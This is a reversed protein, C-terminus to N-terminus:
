SLSELRIFCTLDETPLVGNLTFHHDTSASRDQARRRHEASVADGDKGVQKGKRRFDPIDTYPAPKQQTAHKELSRTVGGTKRNRQFTLIGAEQPLSITRTEGFAISYHFDVCIVTALAHAM